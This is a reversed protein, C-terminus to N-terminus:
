RRAAVQLPDERYYRAVYEPVVELLENGAMAVLPCDPESHYLHQGTSGLMRQVVPLVERGLEEFSTVEAAALQVESVALERAYPSTARMAVISGGVPLARCAPRM